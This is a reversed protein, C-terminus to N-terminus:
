DELYKECEFKGSVKECLYKNTEVPKVETQKTLMYLNAAMGFLIGLLIALPVYVISHRM